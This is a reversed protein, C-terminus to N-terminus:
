NLSPSGSPYPHVHKNYLINKKFLFFILFFYLFAQNSWGTQRNLLVPQVENLYSRSIEPPLFSMTTEIFTIIKLKQM